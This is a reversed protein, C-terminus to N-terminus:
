ALENREEALVVVDPPHRLRHADKKLSTEQLIRTLHLKLDQAAVLAVDRLVQAPGLGLVREGRPPRDRGMEPPLVLLEHEAM